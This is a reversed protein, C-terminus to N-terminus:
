QAVKLGGGRSAALGGLPLAERLNQLLVVTKDAATQALERHESSGVQQSGLHRWAM